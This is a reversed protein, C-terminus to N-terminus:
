KPYGPNPSSTTIKSGIQVTLISGTKVTKIHPFCIPSISIQAFFWGNKGSINEMLSKFANSIHLRSLSVFDFLILCEFGIRGTWLRRAQSAATEMEFNPDSDECTRITPITEKKLKVINNKVDM